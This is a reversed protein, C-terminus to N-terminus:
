IPELNRRKLPAVAVGKSRRYGTTTTEHKHGLLKQADRIEPIDTATKARIDRFQWDAEGRAKDFRKWLAKLRVRQGQRDCILHLSPVDRKRAQIRELVAKLEGEITIGVKAGTKAQVIWLEGDRIDHRTMALVDGPRQGTYLALDMADQLIDGGREWVARYEADTVYRERRGTYQFTAKEAKSFKMDRCPNPSSTHGEGRAWNFFASLVRREFIAAGKSSRLRMYSKVHKPEIQELAFDKFAVALNVLAARYHTQTGAALGPIVAERYLDAIAPFLKSNGSAELSAWQQLAADLNDGLPTKKGGAQHYYLVRGSKLPRATMHQPLDKYASKPRGM